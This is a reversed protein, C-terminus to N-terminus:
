GLPDKGGPDVADQRYADRFVVEVVTDHKTNNNKGHEKM